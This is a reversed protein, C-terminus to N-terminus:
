FSIGKKTGNQRRRVELPQCHECMGLSGHRCLRSDRQRKIKGDSRLLRQDLSASATTGTTGISDTKSEESTKLHLFILDGHSFASLTETGATIRSEEAAAPDRCLWFTECNSYISALQLSVQEYLWLTSNSPSFDLKLTGKPHRVRLLPM